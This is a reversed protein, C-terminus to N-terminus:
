RDVERPGLLEGNRHCSGNVQWFLEREAAVEGDHERIEHLIGQKRALFLRRSCAMDGDHRHALAIDDVHEDLIAKIRRDLEILLPQGHRMDLPM